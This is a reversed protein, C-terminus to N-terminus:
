RFLMPACVVCGCALSVYGNILLLVVSGLITLATRNRNLMHSAIFCCVISGLCLLGMFVPPPRDWFKLTLYFIISPAFGIWLALVYPNNERPPPQLNPEENM